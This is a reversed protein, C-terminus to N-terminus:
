KPSFPIGFPHIDRPAHSTMDGKSSKIGNLEITFLWEMPCVGNSYQHTHPKTVPAKTSIILTACDSAGKLISGAIRYEMEM